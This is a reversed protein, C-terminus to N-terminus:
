KLQELYAVVEDLQKATLPVKPMRTGPKFRAPDDVWARLYDPTNPLALAALTQRSAVHTLDPGVTGTAATGRITHCSACSESVFVASSRERRGSISRARAEPFVQLCTQRRRASSPRSIM